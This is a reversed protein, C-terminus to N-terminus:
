PRYETPHTYPVDMIKSQLFGLHQRDVFRVHKTYSLLKQYIFHERRFFWQRCPHTEDKFPNQLEWEIRENTTEHWKRTLARVFIKRHKELVIKRKVKKFVDISLMLFALGIFFLCFNSLYM